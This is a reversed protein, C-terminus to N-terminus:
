APSAASGKSTAPDCLVSAETDGCGKGGIGGGGIGGAEGSTRTSDLFTESLTGLLAGPADAVVGAAEVGVVAGTIGAGGRAEIGGGGNALLTGGGGEDTAGGAL